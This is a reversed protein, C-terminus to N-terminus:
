EEIGDKINKLEKIRAQRMKEKEAEVRQKEIERLKEFFEPLWKESNVKEGEAGANKALIENMASITINDASLIKVAELSDKLDLSSIVSDDAHKFLFHREEPQMMQVIEVEEDSLGFATKYREDSEVNPLFIKTALHSKIEATIKSDLVQNVNSNVMLVLCNKERMRQLFKAFVKGVINNDIIDWAEDIIIISPENGDILGEIRHLLYIAIPVLIPKKGAFESLDFNSINNEGFEIEDEYGFIHDLGEGTWVQLKAYIHQMQPDNFIEIASFFDHVDSAFIKEVFAPILNLEEEPIQEESFYVLSFFLEALLEQNEKSVDLSIPNLFLSNEEDNSSIKYNSGGLSEILCTSSSSADLYFIKGGFRRSQAVLFNALTTKGMGKEGLILSHGLNGDHFNFFYPTDLVTKFASVAPGWLNGAINGTPFSHLAAFGAIKLTNIIKQRALYRFNGPLQSWFCHQSFLDERIVVFGLENFQELVDKIEQELKKPSDSILMLTTQLKGYDTENGKNSEVFNAIGSMQRFEEDGSVELLYNQYEYPELEKDTSIFDFSQTIVFEFPLQLIHDLVATSVEFYEKLSLMAAFNKNNNGVVQLERDGFAMKHSALESSIDNSALPYRDEYLNIIKGFFRMPESYLAGEWDVIGLLKAGYDRTEKLIAKTVKSLEKYEKELFDRHLSKTAIYSLSRVFSNFNTISTDLGEIIVTVYLENVYQDDWKNNKVWDDNLKQSFLDDFEGKPSINKKRRITNFWFAFKGGPVNDVIADRVSDRLSILESVASAKNFGTIRIIQMLEGNKTLITHPNYHCVYPIFDEDPKKAVLKNPDKKKKKLITKAALDLIM